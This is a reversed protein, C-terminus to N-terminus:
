LQKNWLIEIEDPFQMKLDQFGCIMTMILLNVGDAIRNELTDPFNCYLYGDSKQIVPHIKLVQQFGLLISQTLTSVGACLLNNGKKGLTSHGEVTFCEFSNQKDKLTLRIM